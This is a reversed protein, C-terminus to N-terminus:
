KEMNTAFQILQDAYISLQYSMPNAGLRAESIGTLLAKSALMSLAADVEKWRSAGDNFFQRAIEFANAGVDRQDVSIEVQDENKKVAVLVSIEFESLGSIVHSIRAIHSPEGVSSVLGGAIFESLLKLNYEAEGLRVREFFTYSAPIFFSLQDDNLARIGRREVAALLVDQGRQFQKELELRWLENITNSGPLLDSVVAIALSSISRANNTPQPLEENDM